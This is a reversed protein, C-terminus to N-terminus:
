VPAGAEPWSPALGVPCGKWPPASLPGGWGGAAEEGYGNGCWSRPEVEAAGLLGGHKREYWTRLKADASPTKAASMVAPAQWMPVMGMLSLPQVVLESQSLPAQTLPMQTPPAALAEPPPARVAHVAAAHALGDPAALACRAEPTLPVPPPPQAQM